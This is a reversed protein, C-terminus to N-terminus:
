KKLQSKVRKLVEQNVEIKYKEGLDKLWNEEKYTQYDSIVNGKADELTKQEEPLIAKVNVVVFADNHKYIKSIGKKFSFDKPLSQHDDEMIGSTFIVDIEDNSNVLSKIRDLAMNKSLLKSVKKLTKHKTSSAVVADFRIPKLYNKKNVEYFKAIETSDSKASNWITNEMLDFLLLGDRYEAVIHAYDENEFELNDEQYKILSANLFSDYKDTALSKM